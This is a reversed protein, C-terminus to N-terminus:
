RIRRLFLIEAAYTTVLSVVLITAGLVCIMWPGKGGFAGVFVYLFGAAVLLLWAAAAMKLLM